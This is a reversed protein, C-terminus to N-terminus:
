KPQMNEFIYVALGNKADIVERIGAVDIFWTELDSVASFYYGNKM